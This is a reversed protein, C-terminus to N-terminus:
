KKLLANCGTPWADALSWCKFRCWRCRLLWQSVDSGAGSLESVRDVQGASSKTAVRDMVAVWLSLFDISTDLLHLNQTLRTSCLCWLKWIRCWVCRPLPSNHNVCSRINRPMKGLVAPADESSHVPSRVSHTYIKLHTKSDGKELPFLPWSLCVRARVCVCLILLLFVCLCFDGLDTQQHLGYYFVCKPKCFIRQLSELFFFFIFYACKREVIKLGQKWISVSPWWLECAAAKVFSIKLQNPLFLSPPIHCCYRVPTGNARRRFQETDTTPCKAQLGAM